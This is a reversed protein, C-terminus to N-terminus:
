RATTPVSLPDGPRCGDQPPRLAWGETLRGSAAPSKTGKRAHGRRGEVQLGVRQVGVAVEGGGLDDLVRGAGAHLQQRQGVVVGHVADVLRQGRASQVAHAHDRGRLDRRDVPWELVQVHEAVPDVM